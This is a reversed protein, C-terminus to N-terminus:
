AEVQALLSGLVRKTTDSSLVDKLWQLFEEQSRLVPPKELPGEGVRPASVVTVPYIDVMTHSVNFLEYQYDLAPAAIVFTHNVGGRFTTSRVRGELVNGTHRGLLAAQQKMLSLPTVKPKTDGIDPWFDLTQEAM